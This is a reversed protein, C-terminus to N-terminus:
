VTEIVGKLRFSLYDLTSLNDQIIISFKDGATLTFGGDAFDKAFTWRGVYQGATKFQNDFDFMTGRIERNTTWNELVVKSGGSPTISVEVGNGLAGSIQGFNGAVFETSGDEIVLLGRTLKVKTDAPVTYSYEVPTTGNVAMNVTSGDLLFESMYNDEDFVRPLENGLSDYQTVNLQSKNNTSIGSELEELSIKLNAGNTVNVNLYPGAPSVGAVVARTLQADADDHLPDRLQKIESTSPVDLLITQMRFVGQEVGGNTYVIRFYKSEIMAQTTFAQNATITHVETHDWNTNDTSWEFAIGDPASDQDSFVIISMGAHKSIDEGVGTFVGDIGLPATTSNDTSIVNTIQAIVDDQKDETAPNVETNSTNKSGHPGPYGKM